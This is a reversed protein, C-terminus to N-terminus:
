GAFERTQRRGVYRGLIVATGEGPASRVTFLDTYQRMIPLGRGREALGDPLQTTLAEPGFGIGQDIVTALLQERDVIWCRIEITQPTRSHEVANAFAESVATVFELADAKPVSVSAAFSVVRERVYRGFRPDPPVQLRLSAGDGAPRLENVNLGNV